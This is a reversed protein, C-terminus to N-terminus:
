SALLQRKKQDFEDATLVGRDRLDALKELGELTRNEAPVSVNAAASSGDQPAAAAKLAGRKALYAPFALLWFFFTAACWAGAGMNFFGSILDKRVGISKADIYVWITSAIVVVWMIYM